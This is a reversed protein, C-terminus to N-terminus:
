EMRDEIEWAHDLVHWAVRRVFYRRSWLKGGRPGSLPLAGTAAATLAGSVDALMQDMPAASSLSAESTPRWALKSRYVRNADLVHQSIGPLDRGGGRPGKRLSKGAAAITACDFALWCARLVETFRALEGADIPREDAQPAVSPAGFDTTVNGVLRELVTLDSLDAPVEIELRAAQLARAYRPGYAVLTELASPEDRGSRCWGPWEIAGAFTRKRGVELYVPIGKRSQV